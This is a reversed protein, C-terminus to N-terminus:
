SKPHTSPGRGSDSHTRGQQRRLPAVRPLAKSHATAKTQQSLAGSHATHTSQTETDETLRDRAGHTMHATPTHTHTHGRGPVRAGEAGQVQLAYRDSKLEGCSLSSIRSVMRRSRPAATLSPQACHTRTTSTAYNIRTRSGRGSRRGGLGAGRTQSGNRRNHSRTRIHIHTRVSTAHTHSRATHALTHTQFASLSHAHHKEHTTRTHTHLNQFM